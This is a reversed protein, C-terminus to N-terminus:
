GTVFQFAFYGYLTPDSGGTYFSHGGAILLNLWSLAAYRAGGNLMRETEEKGGEAQIRDGVGDNMDLLPTLDSSCM